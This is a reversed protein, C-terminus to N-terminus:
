LNQEPEGQPLRVAQDTTQQLQGSEVPRGGTEAGDDSPLAGQGDSNRCPTPSLEQMQQDAARPELDTAFAFPLDFLMAGFVAPGLALDMLSDISLHQIDPYRLHGVVLLSVSRLCFFQQRLQVRCLQHRADATVTSAIGLTEPATRERPVATM